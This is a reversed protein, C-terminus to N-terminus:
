PTTNKIYIRIKPCIKTFFRKFRVTAKSTKSAASGHFCAGAIPMSWSFPCTTATSCFQIRLKKASGGYISYCNGPASQRINKSIQWIAPFSANCLISLVNSKKKGEPQLLGFPSDTRRTKPMRNRGACGREIAPGREPQPNRTCRKELEHKADIHRRRCNRTNGRNHTGKAFLRGRLPRNPRHCDAM